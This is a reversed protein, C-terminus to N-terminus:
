NIFWGSKPPPKIAGLSKSIYLDLVWAVGRGEQVSKGGAHCRTAELLDFHKLCELGQESIKQDPQWSVVISGAGWLAVRSECMDDGAAEIESLLLL